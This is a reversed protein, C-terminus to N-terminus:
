VLFALMLFKIVVHNKEELSDFYLLVENHVSIHHLRENKKLTTKFM